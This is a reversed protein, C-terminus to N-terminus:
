RPLSYKWGCGKEDEVRSTMGDGIWYTHRVRCWTGIVHWAQGNREVQELGPCVVVM